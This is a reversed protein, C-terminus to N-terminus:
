APANKANAGQERGNRPQYEGLREPVFENVVIILSVDIFIRLYGATEAHGANTPRERVNVGLVPM